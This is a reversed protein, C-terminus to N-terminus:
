VEVDNTSDWLISFSGYSVRSPEVGSSDMEVRPQRGERDCLYLLNNTLAGKTWPVSSRSVVLTTNNVATALNGSNNAPTAASFCVGYFGELETPGGSANPLFASVAASRASLPTSGLKSTPGNYTILGGSSLSMDTVTGESSPSSCIIVVSDTDSSLDDRSYGQTVGLRGFMSYMSAGSRTSWMLFDFDVSADGVIWNTFGTNPFLFYTNGDFHVEPDDLGTTVGLRISGAATPRQWQSAGEAFASNSSYSLIASGGSTSSGDFAAQIVLEAQNVAAVPTALRVWAGGLMGSANVNGFNGAAWSSTVRAAGSTLVHRSGGTGTGGMGGGTFSSISFSASAVTDSPTTNGGAGSVTQTIVVAATNAPDGGAVYLGARPSIYSSFGNANLASIIANRVEFETTAASIDIATNGIGVGNGAKDFEFVITSGGTTTLTFTEGDVLASPAPTVLRAAACGVGKAPGDNEFSLGDGSGLVRWGQAIMDEVFDFLQQTSTASAVPINRKFIHAM